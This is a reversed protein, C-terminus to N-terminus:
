LQRDYLLAIRAGALQAALDIAFRADSTSIDMLDNTLNINDGVRLAPYIRPSDDGSYYSITEKFNRLDHGGFFEPPKYFKNSYDAGRNPDFEIIKYPNKSFISTMQITEIFGNTSRLFRNGEHWWCIKGLHEHCEDPKTISQAQIKFGPALEVWSTPALEGRQKQILFSGCNDPMRISKRAKKNNSTHSDISDSRKRKQPLLSADNLSNEDLKITPEENSIPAQTERLLAQMNFAHRSLNEVHVALELQKAEIIADLRVAQARIKDAEHRLSIIADKVSTENREIQVNNLYTICSDVYHENLEHITLQNSSEM